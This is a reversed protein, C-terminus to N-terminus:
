QALLVIAQEVFSLLNEMLVMVQGEEGYKSTEIMTWLKSLLCARLLFNKLATSTIQFSPVKICLKDVVCQFFPVM